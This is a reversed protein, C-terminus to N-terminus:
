GKVRMESLQILIFILRFKIKVHRQAEIPKIFAMLNLNIKEKRGLDSHSPNFGLGVTIISNKPSFLKRSVCFSWRLPKKLM